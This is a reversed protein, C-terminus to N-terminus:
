VQSLFRAGFAAGCPRRARDTACSSLSERCCPRPHGSRRALTRTGEKAESSTTARTAASTTMLRGRAGRGMASALSDPLGDAVVVASTDAEGVPASVAVGLSVGDAVGVIAGVTAGVTSGVATGVAVGKGLGTGVGTGGITPGGPVKVTRTVSADIGGPVVVM